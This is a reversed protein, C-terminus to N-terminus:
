ALRVLQRSVALGKKRDEQRTQNITQAIGSQPEEQPVSEPTGSIDEQAAQGENESESDEVQPDSPLSQQDEDDSDLLQTRSVRKGSYKPDSLSDQAKRLTSPSRHRPSFHILFQFLFLCGPELLYHETAAAQDDNQIEPEFHLEDPDFDKPAVQSIERIEEALSIRM